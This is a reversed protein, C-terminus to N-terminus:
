LDLGAAAFEREVLERYAVVESTAADENWGLDEAV